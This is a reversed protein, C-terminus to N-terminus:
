KNLNLGNSFNLLCLLVFYGILCGVSNHIIDDFESVGKKFIFQNLEVVISISLGVLLVIWWKKRKMLFGSLFGIPMCLLINQIADKIFYFNGALIKPYSWFPIPEFSVRIRGWRCFVTVCLILFVYELLIGLAIGRKRDDELKKSYIAILLFYLCSILFSFIILKVSLPPLLNDLYLLKNM